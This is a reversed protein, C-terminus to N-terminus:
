IDLQAILDKLVKASQQLKEIEDDTLPPTIERRIGHIGVVFPLSLCVDNIGYRDHIMSSVTLCSNLDEYIAECISTVSAAIAFFTAGKKKIIVSGAEKVEKEIYEKELKYKNSCIDNVCKCCEDFELGVSTVLSWPIMSSDGHEGFVFARINQVNIHLYEGLISTLRATDLTTGSGVVQREPIGCGKILTYTLIDVPNAVVLYVADPAYKYINPVTSKVINVNTQALDLRTQGPKRAMGCTVIVIDSNAADEYEGGNIKVSNAFPTGQYIDLAEGECKEKNIDILVIESCVGKIALTYAITAGVNGAGLITVKKRM